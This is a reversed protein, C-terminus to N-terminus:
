CTDLAGDAGVLSVWSSKGVFYDTYEDICWRRAVQHATKQIRSMQIRRVKGEWIFCPSMGRKQEGM